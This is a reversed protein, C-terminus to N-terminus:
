RRAAEADDQQVGQGRAYKYGLNCQAQANELETAKRYWRAAEADDQKVGQLKQGDDYMLGLNCQAYVDGQEAKQILRV